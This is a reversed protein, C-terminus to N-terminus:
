CSFVPSNAYTPGFFSFVSRFISNNRSWIAMKKLNMAAYKLRVWRTVAALGRHHTYRMYAVSTSIWGYPRQMNMGAQGKGYKQYYYHAPTPIQENELIRAIQSPGKGGACLKFIYQVIVLTEEDPVIDKGDAGKKKYGYSVKGGSREGREAQMRKTTRM